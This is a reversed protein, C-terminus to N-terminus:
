EKVEFRSAGMFISLLSILMGLLEFLTGMISGHAILGFMFSAVGIIMVPFVFISRIRRYRKKM